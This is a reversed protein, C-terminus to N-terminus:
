KINNRSVGQTIVANIIPQLTKETLNAQRPSTPRYGSRNFSRRASALIFEVMARDAPVSAEGQGQVMLVQRVSAPPYFMQAVLQNQNAGDTHNNTVNASTITPSMFWIGTAIATLLKSNKM